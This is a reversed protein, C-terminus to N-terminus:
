FDLDVDEKEVWWMIFWKIGYWIGMWVLTSIFSLIWTKSNSSIFVFAQTPIVINEIILISSLALGWFILIKNLM